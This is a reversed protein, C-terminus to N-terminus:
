LTEDSQQQLDAGYSFLFSFFFFVIALLVFPLPLVDSGISVPQHAYFKLLAHELSPVIVSAVIITVGISKLKNANEPSFPHGSKSTSSFISRFKILIGLAFSYLAIYACMRAVNEGTMFQSFFNHPTIENWVVLIITFVLQMSVLVCFVITAIGMGSCIKKIKEQATNM